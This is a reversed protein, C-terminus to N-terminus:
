LWRRVRARYRRYEAGFRGELYEEEPGIVLRLAAVVAVPALIIPWWTGIWFAAGVLSVVHGAYMPNRSLRFPGTTVLVSVPHHPVVTTRHRLVTAAGSLSFVVGGLTLAAGVLTTVPRGVVSLPLWRDLALGGVLAAAFLAPPFPFRVAAGRASVTTSM